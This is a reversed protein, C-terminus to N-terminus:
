AACARAPRAPRALLRALLARGAGLGDFRRSTDRVGWESAQMVNFDADAAVELWYGEAGEAPQWALTVAPDYIEAGDFPAALETRALM